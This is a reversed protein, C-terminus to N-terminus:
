KETVELLGDRTMAFITEAVIDLESGGIHYTCSPAADIYLDRDYQDGLRFCIHVMPIDFEETTFMVKEPEDADMLFKHAWEDMYTHGIDGLCRNFSDRKGLVKGLEFGYKSLEEIGVGEKLRLGM